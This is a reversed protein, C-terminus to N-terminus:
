HQAAALRRERSWLAAVSRASQGAVEDVRM